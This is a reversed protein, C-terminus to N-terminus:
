LRGYDNWNGYMKGKKTNKIFNSLMRDFVEKKNKEKQINSLKIKRYLEPFNSFNRWVEEDSKLVELIDNDIVFEEDLDPLQEYGSDNMLDNEILWRCRQKNLESWHSNKRRPSFRQMRVGDVLTYTSDIWGFSLAVYVADIYSFVDSTIKGRKCKVWCEKQTSHNESLWKRFEQSNKCNLVNEYEM